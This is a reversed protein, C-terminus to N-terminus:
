SYIEPEYKKDFLNELSVLFVEAQEKNIAGEKYRTIVAQKASQLDLGVQQYLDLINERISEFDKANSQSANVFYGVFDTRIKEDAGFLAPGLPNLWAITQHTTPNSTDTQYYARSSGDLNKLRERGDKSVNFFSGDALKLQHGQNLLGIRQLGERVGDRAIQDKHKGSSFLSSGGGAVAGLLGGVATGLGPLVYSGVYAGLSAGHMAGQAPKLNGFNDFLEFGSYLAGLGGLVKGGLTELGDSATNPNLIGTEINRELVESFIPELIGSLSEPLNLRQLLHDQVQESLERLLYSEATTGIQRSLNDFSYDGGISESLSAFNIIQQLESTVKPFISLRALGEFLGLGNKKDEMAQSSFAGALRGLEKLSSDSKTPKIISELTNSGINQFINSNKNKEVQSFRFEEAPKALSVAEM